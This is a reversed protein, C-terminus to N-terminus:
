FLQALLIKVACESHIIGKVIRQVFKVFAINGRSFNIGIESMLSNLAIYVIHGCRHFTSYGTM